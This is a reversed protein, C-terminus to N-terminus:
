VLVKTKSNKRTKQVTKKQKKTTSKQMIRKNIYIKYKKVVNQINNFPYYITYEQIQNFSEDYFLM